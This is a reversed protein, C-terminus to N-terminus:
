TNIIVGFGDELLILILVRTEAQFAISMMDGFGDELLILILVINGFTNM